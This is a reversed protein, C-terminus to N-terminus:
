LPEELEDILPPPHPQPYLADYLAVHERQAAILAEATISVRVSIVGRSAPDAASDAVPVFYGLRCGDCPIEVRQVNAKV